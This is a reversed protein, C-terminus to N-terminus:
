IFNPKPAFKENVFSRGSLYDDEKFSGFSSQMSWHKYKRCIGRRCSIVMQTNMIRCTLMTSSTLKSSSMCLVLAAIM